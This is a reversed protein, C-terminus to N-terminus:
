PEVIAHEADVGLCDARHHGLDVLLLLEDGGDGALGEDHLGALELGDLRAGREEGSRRAFAPGRAAVAGASGGVVAGGGAAALEGVPLEVPEAVRGSSAAPSSSRSAARRSSSAPESTPPGSNLCRNESSVLSSASRAGLKTNTA